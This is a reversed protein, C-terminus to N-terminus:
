IIKVDAVLRLNLCIIIWSLRKEPRESFIDSYQNQSGEETGHTM